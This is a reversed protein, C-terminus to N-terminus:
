FMFATLFYDAVLIVVSSIVVAQTTSKGVGEAGGTTKMGKYCCILAVLLGFVAAKVIGTYLDKLDTHNLMQRLYIHSNIHLLVVSVFYGGIVGLLDSVITLLPMMTLGTIIRPVVLYHVPDVAMTYMADIQETVKMTGLEAAMASGARGTVVLATLVPGLERFMSVAVISGIVTEANFKKLGTYTELALVMGTFLSTIFVVSLSSVGFREMQKFMERWRFPPRLSWYFARLLLLFAEGLQFVFEYILAFM